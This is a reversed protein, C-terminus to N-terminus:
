IKINTQKKWQMTQVTSWGRTIGPDNHSYLSLVLRITLWGLAYPFQPCCFFMLCVNQSSLIQTLHQVFFPLPFPFCRNQLMHWMKFRLCNNWHRRVVGFNFYGIYPNIIYNTNCQYYTINIFSNWKKMHCSLVLLHLIAFLSIRILHSEPSSLSYLDM